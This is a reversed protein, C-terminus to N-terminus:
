ISSAKSTLEQSLIDEFLRLQVPLVRNKKGDLIKEASGRYFVRYRTQWETETDVPQEERAIHIVIAGLEDFYSDADTTAPEVLLVRSKIDPDNLAKELMMSILRKGLGIKRHSSSIELLDGYYIAAIDETEAIEDMSFMFSSIKHYFGLGLIKHTAGEETEIKLLVGDPHSQILADWRSRDFERVENISFWNDLARNIETKDNIEEAHYTINSNSALSPALSASLKRGQFSSPVRLCYAYQCAIAGTLIFLFVINATKYIKKMIILCFFLWKGM